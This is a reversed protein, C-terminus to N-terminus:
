EAGHNHGDDASHAEPALGMEEKFNLGPITTEIKANKYLGQLLKICADQLKGQKLEDTIQEDTPPEATDASILIHSATVSGADDDRATVKILHYGFQTTVIDSVKGPELAFATDEFPKVMQGRGFTGLEGGKASSPCASNDKALQAFDAGEDLQKKLDEIKARAATAAEKDKAFSAKEAAIDDPSVTISAKINDLLKKILIGENIDRMLFDKPMRASEFLQDLTMNQSKAYEEIRGLEAKLEDDTVTLNQRKAEQVLLIKEVYRKALGPRIQGLAEQRDKDEMGIMGREIATEIQANAMTDLQGFTLTDGNCTVAPDEPKPAPLSELEAIAPNNNSPIISFVAGAALVVFIAIFIYHKHKM